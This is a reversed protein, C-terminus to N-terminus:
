SQTKKESKEYPMNKLLIDRDRDFFTDDIDIVIMMPYFSLKVYQMIDDFSLPIDSLTRSVVIDSVIRQFFDDFDSFKIYAQTGLIDDFHVIDVVSPSNYTLVDKVSKVSVFQGDEINGAEVSLVQIKPDIFRCIFQM